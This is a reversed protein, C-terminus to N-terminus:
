LASMSCEHTVLRTEIESVEIAANEFDSYGDKMAVVLDNVEFDALNDPVAIKVTFTRIKM